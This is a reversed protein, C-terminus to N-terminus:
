HPKKLFHERVLMLPTMSQPYGGRNPLATTSGFPRLNASIAKVAGPSCGVVEVIQPYTFAKDVIMDQILANQLGVLNPAVQLIHLIYLFSHIYM